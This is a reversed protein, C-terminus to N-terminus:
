ETVGMAVLGIIEVAFDRLEQASFNVYVCPETLSGTGGGLYTKLFYTTTGDDDNQVPYVTATAFRNHQHHSVRM